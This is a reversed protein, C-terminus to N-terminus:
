AHKEGPSNLFNAIFQLGARGSKEIHCQSGWVNDRAVFNCFRHEAYNSEALLFSQTVATKDVFAAYSHVFYFNAVDILSQSGQIYLPHEKNWQVSNWGMHPVPENCVFKQIRYPFVGLGEVDGEESWQGLVQMGVCIGLIARGSSVYDKLPLILDLSMLSAMAQRASGVGPFILHDVKQMEVHSKIIATRYGLASVAREVSGINGAGYDLLGVLKGNVDM